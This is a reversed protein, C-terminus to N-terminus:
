SLVVQQTGSRIAGVITATIGANHAESLAAQVADPDVALVMGLGCNFVRVMEDASVRGRRQIEFFIEPTEFSDMAIHADLGEPLIRVVNGVIGGGTIHAAAHLGAGIERKIANVAPVYIVCPRLLEEALTTDAGEWAAAELATPSDLLVRRALSYGNSRLGPSAFGILVDGDRVLHPGIETGQELVGVVFGAVDLEDPRMVGGHEATEGGLLATNAQRCGEAIGAVLEALRAPDLQGVAVYDLMFLPEAGLCALDDVLMAVLDIGVTDYRGVMRAVELKTGVGDASSVLVPNAYTGTDLKFLGGFGGIGGLVGPRNTSAVLGKIREVAEDGAEISVGAQAYTAGGAAQDLLRSV